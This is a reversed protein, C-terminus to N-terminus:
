KDGDEEPIEEMVQLWKIRLRERSRGPIGESLVRKVEDEMKAM